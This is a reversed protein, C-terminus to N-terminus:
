AQLIKPGLYEKTANYKDSVYSSTKAWYEASTNRAAIVEPRNSCSAGM